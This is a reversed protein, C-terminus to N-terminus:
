DTLLISWYHLSITYVNVNLSRVKNDFPKLMPRGEDDTRRYETRDDASHFVRVSQVHRAEM